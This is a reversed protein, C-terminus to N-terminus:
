KKCSQPFPFMCSTGFIKYMSRSLLVLDKETVCEAFYGYIFDKIVTMFLLKYVEDYSKYGTKSLASFYKEIATYVINDM